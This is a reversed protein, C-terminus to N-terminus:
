SRYLGSEQLRRKEEASVEVNSPTLMFVSEAVKKMDGNLGFALGSAFDVLRRKLDRDVETLNIIVPQSSRFREGIEQAETFSSPKVVHVKQAAASANPLPRVSGSVSVASAAAARQAPQVQIGVVGSEPQPSAPLTRVNSVEDAGPQPAAARRAPQQPQDEYAAYDDYPDNDSLGLFDMAKNFFGAM